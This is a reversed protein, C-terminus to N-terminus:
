FVLVCRVEISEREAAAEPASPDKFASHLAFTSRRTDGGDALAGHSDWQKILLCEDRTMRPFYYWAHRAAHKAFYNGYGYVHGGVGIMDKLAQAM